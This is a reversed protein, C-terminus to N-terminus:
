SALRVPVGAAPVLTVSVMKVHEPEDRVLELRPGCLLERLVVQMELQAFAAGICRRTGGGFPLWSYTGARGGDLFREPRFDKAGPYVDDRQHIACSLVSVSCGAPITFGGLEVPERVRRVADFVPPRLRLVETVTADLYATEGRALEEDLRARVAPARGILELAWALGNATTEHGAVLMTLLEDVLDEEPLPSGDEYRADLLLSLIDDRGETGDTRRQAIEERLLRRVEGRRALFRGWPTRGGLDIRLAQVFLALSGAGDVFGAMTARYAERRAPETIGFVVRMIVELTIRQTAERASFVVGPRWTAIEEQTVEAMVERYRQIAEGHLAPLLLRKREMHEDDDLLLTSRRGVLPEISANAEGAPLRVPDTFVQKAVDPHCVMATSGLVPFRMTYVDGYRENWGCFWRLPDRQALGVQVIGPLRPGPPLTTTAPM